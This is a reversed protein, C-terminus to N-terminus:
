ETKEPLPNLQAEAQRQINNILKVVQGYPQSALANMIVNTEDATFTFNLKQEM